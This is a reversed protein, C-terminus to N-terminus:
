GAKSILEDARKAADLVLAVDDKEWRRKHTHLACIAGKAYEGDGLKLPVGLYACIRLEAHALNDKLLPHDVTNDIVLPFEMAVSHQCISHTLPMSNALHKPLEMCALALVNQSDNTVETVLVGDVDLSKCLRLALDDLTEANRLDYSTNPM